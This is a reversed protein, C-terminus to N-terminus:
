AFYNFCAGLSAPVYYGADVSMDNEGAAVPITGTFGTSQNPDSDTADKNTTNLQITRSYGAKTSFSIVYNGACLDTFNYLGNAGTIQTALAAGDAVGNADNDAFISVTVGDLPTSTGEDQLGNGNTDVWVYNGISAKAPQANVLVSTSAPSTCGAANTVTYTYTGAALGSITTTIGTGSITSSTAGVTQSLTWAGAPLGSLNVSGTAVACTPQTITGVVPAAPTTPQSNIVASTSAPSICGAANTVTFTYSGAALGSITTSNGTGTTTIAGPTRTITWSGAPLGSLVVSGTALACTPQTVTGTVPATPTAPQANVVASTSVPSTCGAANTVTFTYSGAALGAFNATTGSGTLTANGPNATITWSGAPLGSLAVTGTALACTPQTISGTVPASPSAPQANVVASTSAPSVCGAANAVTFTYSGASLGSITTTAGTGTTVVAGPTRTLTWTGSAPLGSLAVSGTALTCTPQTVAGTVPATPTAPQANITASATAPSTCGAANTVTFTYSGAALGSITTTTGTGTTTVAGPSRTLTWTGSAPLGNLAVSGTALACTPQTITGNIPATPTAPQAALTVNAIPTECGSANKAKVTHLGAALGTYTTATTYTTSGDISYTIGAGTPQTITLSGTSSTCTPDIQTTTINPLSCSTLTVCWLDTKLWSGTGGFSINVKGVGAPLVSNITYLQPGAPATSLVKNVEVATNSIFVGAATFYDVSVQHYFSNDHTGAFVKVTLQTGVSYSPLILTQAAFNSAANTIEFDGSFLGCATAGTGANFNGGSSFWGTTGNEFSPNTVLNGPCDCTPNNLTFTFTKNDCITGTGNTSTYVKVNVTYTGSVTPNFELGTGPANFPAATETNSTVVGNPDTITFTASGVTGTTSIEFNYAGSNIANIDYTSSNAIAIDAGANVENFFLSTVVGNCVPTTITVTITNSFASCVVSGSTSITKRRYYTTATLTSADDYTAATGVVTVGSSFDSTTSKEWQYTITGSGTGATTSTFAAPNGSTVFSQNAAVVGANVSNVTVTIVNSTATCTTASATNTAVRQYYTTTSIAGPTYTASTAGSINTFGATASTTSSQWQYTITGNGAAAATSTFAAPATGGCITQNAGITGGTSITCTAACNFNGLFQTEHIEGGGVILNKVIVQGEINTAGGKNFTAHPALISANLTAGVNYNITTTTSNSFNILTYAAGAFSNLQLNAWNFTASTTNANIILIHNADAVPNTTLNIAGNLQTENLTLYNVGTALNIVPNSGAPLTVTAAKAGLCASTSRLTTFASAIGAANLSGLNSVQSCLQANNSKQLNTGGNWIELLGSGIFCPSTTGTKNALNSINGIKLFTNGLVQFQNNGSIQNGVLSGVTYAETGVKYTGADNGATAFPANIILNNGTAFAGTFDGSGSITTNGEVFVAFNQAPSLPGVAPGTPTGAPTAIQALSSTVFGLVLLFLGTTKKVLNSANSLFNNRYAIPLPQQKNTM